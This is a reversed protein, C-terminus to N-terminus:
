TSSPWAVPRRVAGPTISVAIGAATCAATDVQDFGVGFRAGLSLRGDPAISSARFDGALLVLADLGATDEPLIAPRPPLRTLAVGPDRELPGIDFDPYAPSGDPRLFGGSLAVCWTM